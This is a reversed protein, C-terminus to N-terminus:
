SEGAICDEAREAEDRQRKADKFIRIIEGTDKAEIADRMEAREDDFDFTDSM